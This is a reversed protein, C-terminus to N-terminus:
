TGPAATCSLQHPRDEERGKWDKGRWIFGPKKSSTRHQLERLSLTKLFTTAKNTPYAFHMPESLWEGAVRSPIFARITDVTEGDRLTSKAALQERFYALVLDRDHEDDDMEGQRERILAQCAEPDEVRAPVGQEWSAWRTRAALAPVEADLIAGIDALIAWRNEGIYALM